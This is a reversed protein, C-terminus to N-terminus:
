SAGRAKEWEDAFAMREAIPPHSAKMREWASPDLDPLNRSSMNKWLSTYAAPNGTLELADLDAEREFWRSVWASFYRTVLTIAGFILLVLPFAQPDRLTSVGAWDLLASGPRTLLHVGLFLLISSFIGIVMQKKIHGRRWHGIEHAVVVEVNEEPMQLLNDYVVVRRTKGLGAFFANDKKTRKSADMVLYDSISVGGATALSALKAKLEERDLPTFKNFMPLIVIPFLFALVVSFLMFVGAGLLWWLETSRILAWLPIFLISLIVGGILLGKLQDGVFTGPTQTSFGWKKEHGFEAWISIPMSVIESALVFTFMVVLLQLPWSNAGVADIAKGAVGFTIFALLFALSVASGALRAYQLPRQYSKSKAVEEDSFFRRPDTKIAKKLDVPGRPLSVASRM